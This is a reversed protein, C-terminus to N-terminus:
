VMKPVMRIRIKNESALQYFKDYAVNKLKFAIVGARSKAEVPTVMEVKGEGLQLLENQFHGALNHIRQTVNQLGISEIFDIAAVVGAYLAPYFQSM